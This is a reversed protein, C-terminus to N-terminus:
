ETSDRQSRRTADALDGAADAAHHAVDRHPSRPSVPLRHPDICCLSPLVALSFLFAASPLFAVTRVALSHLSSEDACRWWCCQACVSCDSLYALAPTSLRRRLKRRHLAGAVAARMPATSVIRSREIATHARGHGREAQGVGAGVSHHRDSVITAAVGPRASLQHLQPTRRHDGSRCLASAVICCRDAFACRPPVTCELQAETTM